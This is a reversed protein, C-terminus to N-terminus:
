EANGGPLTLEIINPGTVVGSLVRQTQPDFTAVYDGLGGSNRAVVDAAIAVPGDHVILVAPMGAHVIENILTADPYVADGRTIASRLKRGLLSEIPANMRGTFPLQAYALDDAGIIGGAMLDHAAVTTRVYTTIRFGAFVTRVVQGDVGIAIPIGVYGANLQPAGSTIAVVGAPVAQDSLTFAPVIARAPDTVLSRATREALASIRAAPVIQTSAQVGDALAWQVGLALTAGLGLIISRVIMM